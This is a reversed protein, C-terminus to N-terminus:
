KSSDKIKVIGFKGYEYNDQFAHLGHNFKSYQILICLSSWSITNGVYIYTLYLLSLVTM